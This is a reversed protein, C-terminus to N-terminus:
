RQEVRDFRLTILADLAAEPETELALLAAYADGALGLTEAFAPETKMGGHRREMVAARLVDGRERSLLRAQVMMHRWAQQRAIALAQAFIELRYGGCAFRVTASLAGQRFRLPKWAFGEFRGFHRAVDAAFPRFDHVECLVDLDSGDVDIGIPITGALVPRYAALREFVGAEILARAADRQRPTGRALSGPETPPHDM